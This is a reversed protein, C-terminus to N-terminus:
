SIIEQNIGMVLENVQQFNPSAPLSTNAAAYKLREEYENIIAFFNMDFTGDEKQYKGNRISMLFDLDKERYTIIEENELIDFAMLYLRVLHMAHKNLHLNDKKNNRKNLKGYDKVINNLDSWINKYDRLPYEHLNIDALIETDYESEADACQGIYLNISGNEFEKYRENFGAIASLCSGLIHQEKEDQPYSDRALANQLRRLQQNAYGGFSRIAKQSLFLKRNEILLRGADTMYAYHEPKCGLLEIVNPNCNMLLGILKNFSYIVTDTQNDIVQEFNTLGLLDSKSNFACGRVDVDSDPTNTGYAHSGGLTLFM